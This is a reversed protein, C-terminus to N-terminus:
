ATNRVSKTCTSHQGFYKEDTILDLVDKIRATMSMVKMNYKKLMHLWFQHVKFETIM